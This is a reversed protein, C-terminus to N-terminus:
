DRLQETLSEVNPTPRANIMFGYSMRRRSCEVMNDGSPLSKWSCLVLCAWSFTTSGHWRELAHGQFLYPAAVSAKTNSSYQAVFCDALVQPPELFHIKLDGSDPDYIV